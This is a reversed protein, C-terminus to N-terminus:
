IQIRLQFWIVKLGFAQFKKQPWVTTFPLVSRLIGVKRSGLVSWYAMPIINKLMPLRRALEESSLPLCDIASCSHLQSLGERLHRKWTPLAKTSRAWNWAQAHKTPYLGIAQSKPTWPSSRHSVSSVWRELRAIASSFVSTVGTAGSCIALLCPLPDHEPCEGSLDPLFLFSLIRYLM